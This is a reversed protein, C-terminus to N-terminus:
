GKIEMVEVPDLYEGEFLIQYGVKGNNSNVDYLLQGRLVDDGIKVKPETNFYYLSVYGNGHDIEVCHGYKQDTRVDIVQGNGSATVTSSTNVGWVVIQTEAPDLTIGNADTEGEFMSPESIISMKGSVPIGSPIRKTAEEENQVMQAAVQSALITLKDRLNTQERNAELIIQEQESKLTEVEKNAKRLSTELVCFRVIAFISLLVIAAIVLVSVEIKKKRIESFKKSVIEMKGSNKSDPAETKVTEETKVAEETKVTEETKVEEVTEVTNSTDIVNIEKQKEELVTEKVSTEKTNQPQTIKRQVNVNKRKSKKKGM